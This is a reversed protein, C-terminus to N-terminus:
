LLPYRGSHPTQRRRKRIFNFVNHNGHTHSPRPKTARRVLSLHSIALKADWGRFEMGWLDVCETEHREVRDRHRVAHVAFLNIRHAGASNSFAKPYWTERVSRGIAGVVVQDQYWGVGKEM